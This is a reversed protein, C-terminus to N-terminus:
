DRFDDKLEEVIKDHPLAAFRDEIEKITTSRAAMETLARAVARDDGAQILRKDHLAAFMSNAGKLLLLIIQIITGASLGFM